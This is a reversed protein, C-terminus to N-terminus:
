NETLTTAEGFEYWLGTHNGNYGLQNSVVEYSGKQIRANHHTHGYIWLAIKGKDDLVVDSAYCQNTVRGEYEALSTGKAIPSHHSIIVLKKDEASDIVQQLFRLNEYYKRVTVSPCLPYGNDLRIQRYDNLYYQVEEWDEEAIKSWLTTGVFRINELDFVENDLIHVNDPCMDRLKQLIKSMPLKDSSYYEHNGMIWFVHTYSTAVYVLFRPLLVADHTSIDGALVLIPAVPELIWRFHKLIQFESENQFELHLDSAYQIKM